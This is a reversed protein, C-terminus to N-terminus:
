KNTKDEKRVERKKILKSQRYPKGIIHNHDIFGNKRMSHLFDAKVQENQNRKKNFFYLYLEFKFSWYM